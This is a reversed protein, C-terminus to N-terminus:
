SFVRVYVSQSYFAVFEFNFWTVAFGGDKLPAIRHGPAGDDTLSTYVPFSESRATGDDAFIRGTLGSGYYVGDSVVVILDGNELVAVKAASNIVGPSQVQLDNQVPPRHDGSYTTLRTKDGLGNSNQVSLLQGEGTIEFDYREAGLYPVNLVQFANGEFVYRLNPLQM